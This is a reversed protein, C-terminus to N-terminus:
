NLHFKTPIITDLEIEKAVVDIIDAEEFWEGLKDNKGKKGANSEILWKLHHKFGEFKGNYTERIKSIIENEITESKTGTGVYLLCQIRENINKGKLRENKLNIINYPVYKSDYKEDIEIGRTGFFCLFLYKTNTYSDTKISGVKGSVEMVKNEKDIALISNILTNKWTGTKGNIIVNYWDLKPFKFYDEKIKQIMELFIDDFHYQMKIPIFINETNENIIIKIDEIINKDEICWEEKKEKIM